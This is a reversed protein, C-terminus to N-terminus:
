RVVGEGHEGNKCASICSAKELGEFGQAGDPLIPTLKKVIWPLDVRRRPAEFDCPPWNIVNLFVLVGQIWKRTIAVLAATVSSALLILVLRANLSLSKM